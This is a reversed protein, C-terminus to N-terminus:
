QTNNRIFDDQLTSLAIVFFEDIDHAQLRSAEVGIRMMREQVISDSFCPSLFRKGNPNEKYFRSLANDSKRKFERVNENAM